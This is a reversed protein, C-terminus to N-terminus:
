GKFRGEASLSKKNDDVSFSYHGAAIKKRAAEYFRDPATTSLARIEELEGMAKKLELYAEEVDHPILVNGIVRFRDQMRKFGSAQRAVESVSVDLRLANELAPFLSAALTLVAVLVANWASQAGFVALAAIIIPVAVFAKRYFRLSRLWIYLSTSTYLCSEEKRQCEELLEKPPLAM